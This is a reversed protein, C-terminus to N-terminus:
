IDKQYVRYRRLNKVGLNKLANNMPFNDELVYNVEMRIDRHGLTEHLKRYMLADVAKGHYEPVVGLAWMRYQRIRPLGILLKLWGFPFLRGDLGQLLTNVDPLAMAFGIAEGRANEAFLLLRPDVIPKMDRAMAKGEEGTVPYFGWNDAISRNALRVFMDVERELNRMDISRVTVGLKKQVRDTLRLYREPIAYGERSDIYYVM